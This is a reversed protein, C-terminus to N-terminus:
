GVSLQLFLVPGEGAGHRKARSRKAQEMRLQLGVVAVLGVVSANKWNMRLRWGREGSPRWVSLFRETGIPGPCALVPRQLALAEKKKKAPLSPATHEVVTSKSRVEFEGACSLFCVKVERRRQGGEVQRGAQRERDQSALAWM